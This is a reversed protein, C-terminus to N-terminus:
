RLRRFRPRRHHSAFQCRDLGWWLQHYIAAHLRPLAHVVFHAGYQKDLTSHECDATDPARIAGPYRPLLRIRGRSSRLDPVTHGSSGSRFKALRYSPAFQTHISDSVTRRHRWEVSADPRPAGAAAVPLKAPT